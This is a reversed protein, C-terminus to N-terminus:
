SAENGGILTRTRPTGPSSSRPQSRFAPWHFKSYSWVGRSVETYRGRDGLFYRGNEIKGNDALGGLAIAVPIAVFANALGLLIAIAALKTLWREM